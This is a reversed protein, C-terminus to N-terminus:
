RRQQAARLFQRWAARRRPNRPHLDFNADTGFNAPVNWVLALQIRAAAIQALLSAFVKDFQADDAVASPSFEGVILPRGHKRAAERLFSLYPLLGCFRADFWGVSEYPHITLTETQDDHIREAVFGEWDQMRSSAFRWGENGSALARPGAGPRVPTHDFHRALAQFRATVEHCYHAPVVDQNTWNGPTGMDVDTRLVPPSLDIQADCENGFEWYGIAASSRYRPVITAIVRAFEESSRSARDAFANAPEGFVAPIQAQSFFLSPALLVGHREASAVLQDFADLFASQNEIFAARYTHPTHGFPAFRVVRVGHDTLLQFLADRAPAPTLPWPAGPTPTVPGYLWRLLLDPTNVGFEQLPEGCHMLLGDQVTIM